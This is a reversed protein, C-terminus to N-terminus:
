AEGRALKLAQEMDFRLASPGEPINRLAREVVDVLADHAKCRRVVQDIPLDTCITKNVVSM